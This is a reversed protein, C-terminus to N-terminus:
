DWRHYDGVWEGVTEVDDDDIRTAWCDRLCALLQEPSHISTVGAEDLANAISDRPKRGARSKLGDLVIQRAFSLTFEHWGAPDSRFRPLESLEFGNIFRARFEPDKSLALDRTIREDLRTQHIAINPERGNASEMYDAADEGAATWLGQLVDRLDARVSDRSAREELTQLTDLAAARQESGRRRFKDRLDEYCSRSCWEGLKTWVFYKSRWLERKGASPEVGESWEWQRHLYSFSLQRTQRAGLGLRSAQQALGGQPLAKKLGISLHLFSPDPRYESLLRGRQLWVDFGSEKLGVPAIRFTPLRIQVGAQLQIHPVAEVRTRAGTTAAAITAATVNDMWGIIAAHRTSALRLKLLLEANIEPTFGQRTANASGCVFSFRRTGKKSREEVFFIKAHVLGSASGQAVFCKPERKLAAAASKILQVDQSRCADDITVALIKPKLRTLLQEFFEGEVYPSVVLVREVTWGSETNFLEYHGM